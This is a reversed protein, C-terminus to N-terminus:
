KNCIKYDSRSSRTRNDVIINYEGTDKLSWTCSTRLDAVNNCLSKGELDLVRLTLEADESVIRLTATGDNGDEAFNQSLEAYDYREVSGSLCSENLRFETATAPIAFVGALAAFSVLMLPSKTM